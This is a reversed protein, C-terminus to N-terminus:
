NVSNGVNLTLILLALCQCFSMKCRVCFVMDSFFNEEFYRGPGCQIKVKIEMIEM